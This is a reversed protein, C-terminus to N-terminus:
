NNTVTDQIQILYGSDTVSVTWDLDIVEPELPNYINQEKIQLLDLSDQFRILRKEHLEEKKFAIKPNDFINTGLVDDLKPIRAINLASNNAKTLIGNKDYLFIGIPSQYFIEELNTTIPREQRKQNNQNPKNM